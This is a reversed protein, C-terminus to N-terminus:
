LYTNLNYYVSRRLLYKKKKLDLLCVLISGTRSRIINPKRLGPHKLM